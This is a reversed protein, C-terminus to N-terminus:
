REGCGGRGCGGQPLPGGHGSSRRGEREHPPSRADGSRYSASRVDVDAHHNWERDDPRSRGRRHRGDPVGDREAYHGIPDDDLEGRIGAEEEAEEAEAEAEVEAEIEAEIEDRLDDAIDKLEMYSFGDGTMSFMIPYVDGFEDNVIPGTIGDPLGPAVDDVKRRLDDWIPRMQKFEERINVYIVSETGTKQAEGLIWRVQQRRLVDRVVLATWPSIRLFDAMNSADPAEIFQRQLAALTKKDECVLLADAMNLIHRRQPKSLEIDLQDIFTCLEQSNRVIRTLM